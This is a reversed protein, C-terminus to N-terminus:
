RRAREAVRLNHAVVGAYLGNLGWVVIAGAKQHRRAWLAVGTTVGAKLAVQGSIPLRMLPNREVAGSQLAAHTSALDAGQLAGFTLLGSLLLTNM